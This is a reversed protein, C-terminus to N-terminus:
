LRILSGGLLEAHSPHCTFIVLQRKSAFASLARGAAKQREPDMDVLPDDMMLFGRAEGLFHSAMTLRLALALLDKTGASLREWSLAAGGGRLATPISGDMEVAGYRGGSMLSVLGELEAQMGSYVSRDSAGLLSDTLAAVRRLAAGREEEATFAAEAEELLGALEESSTEPAKKELEAKELRLAAVAERRRVAEDRARDYEAILAGADKFGSPLPAFSALRGEHDQEERRSDALADLLKEQTGYAARYEAIRAGKEAIEAQRTEAKVRARALEGEVEALPRTGAAAEAAAAAKSLEEFSRGSLEDDLARRAARAEASLREGERASEEAEQVSSVGQASLLRSLTMRAEEPDGAASRVEIELDPHTIRLLGSVEWRKVRGKPVDAKTEPQAGEQVGLSLPSKAKVIVSPRAGETPSLLKLAQAADRIGALAEPSVAKAAKMRKEAEQWDAKRRSARQLTERVARGKEARVAEAREKELTELVGATTAAERGLEGLKAELVPWERNATKLKEAQARLTQLRAEATLRERAEKEAKRTSSLFEEVRASEKVADRLRANVADMGREYQEAEDRAEHLRERTYFAELISGVEKTWPNSIGRGGEPGRARADWRADSEASRRSLLERFGDVSVGGTELVASRLMDSLESVADSGKTLLDMTLALEAQGTMLVNWFTGPKAPLISELKEKVADDDTLSGGEPLTLESAPHPGWRRALTYSGGEAQFELEVKLTDGGSVPLYRDLYKKFEPKKLATRLLVSKMAGFLTSKGAENPGLIVNLGPSFRVERDAFFGFPNVRLRTLIM